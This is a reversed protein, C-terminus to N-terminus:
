TDLMNRKLMHIHIHFLHRKKNKVLEIRGSSFPLGTHLESLKRPYQVDFEFFYGGDSEDNYNKKSAKM